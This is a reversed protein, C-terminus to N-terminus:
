STGLDNCSKSKLICELIERKNTQSANYENILEGDAMVLVRDSVSLVEDVDGSTLIISKGDNALDSLTDYLERRVRVDIGETPENLMLIDGEAALCKAFLVKQQNGGSLYEVRQKPSSLVIRLAKIYKQALRVVYQPSIKLSNVSNIYTLGINENVSRCTILGKERRNNPLLGVGAKISNIPSSIKLTKGNLSLQGETDPLLGFIGELVETKGCGALGTIGLIEGKRLDFGINKVLSGVSLDEVTFVVDRPQAEKKHFSKLEGVMLHIIKELNTEATSQTSIMKGDRLVSTKDGIQFIEEMNHSIYVIGKGEKKLKDIVDFLKLREESDLAATAEDVLLIKCDASLAKAIAVIEQDPISLQEVPKQMDLEMGMRDVLEKAYALMKKKNLTRYGTKWENGLFINEVASLTPVLDRGQHISAIGANRAERPSSLRCPNNDILVEGEYDPYAGSLIKVVTSKGAGNEGVLCHTSGAELQFSVNDLAIVGPFKKSINNLQLLM